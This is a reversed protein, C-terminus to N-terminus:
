TLKWVFGQRRDINNCVQLNDLLQSKHFAGHVLVVDLLRLPLLAAAGGLAAAAPAPALGGLRGVLGVFSQGRTLGQSPTARPDTTQGHMSVRVIERERERGREGRRM